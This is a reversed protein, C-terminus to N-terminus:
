MEKKAEKDEEKGTTKVMTLWVWNANSGLCVRIYTM